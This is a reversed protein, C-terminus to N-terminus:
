RQAPLHRNFAPADHDDMAIPVPPDLLRLGQQPRQAQSGVVRMGAQRKRQAAAEALGVRDDETVRVPRVDLGDVAGQHEVRPTHVLPVQPRCSQAQFPIWTPEFPGPALDRAVHAIVRWRRDSNELHAAACYAGGHYSYLSWTRRGGSPPLYRIWM